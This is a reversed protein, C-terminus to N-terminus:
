ISHCTHEWIIVEIQINNKEYRLTLCGSMPDHKIKEIPDGYRKDCQVKTEGIRGHAVIPVLIVM